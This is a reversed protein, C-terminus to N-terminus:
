VDDALVQTGGCMGCLSSPGLWRDAGPFPAAAMTTGSPAFVRAGIEAVFCHFAADPKVEKNSAMLGDLEWFFVKRWPGPSLSTWNNTPVSINSKTGLPHSQPLPTLCFPQNTACPGYFFRVLHRKYGFSAKTLPTQQGIHIFGEGYCVPALMKLDLIFTFGGSPVSVQAVSLTLDDAFSALTPPACCECLAAFTAQSCERVFRNTHAAARYLLRLLGPTVQAVWGLCLSALLWFILFPWPPPVCNRGTSPHGVVEWALLSMGM